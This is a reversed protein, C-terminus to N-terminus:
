SSDGAPFTSRLEALLDRAREVQRRTTHHAAVYISKVSLYARELEDNVVLYDYQDYHLLEQKATALRREIVAPTDTARGRLRQELVALSPPLVWIMVADDPFKVRLQEGGQWDIDFLVDHGGELADAVAASPTGYCNGHVQAWEAFRGEAAMGQFTPLDVFHYDVGDREGARPKRTTYSVSFRLETFDRILRHCLTTKGAGSPSSVIVLLGRSM